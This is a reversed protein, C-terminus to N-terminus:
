YKYNSCYRHPAAISAKAPPASPGSAQTPEEQGRHAYTETWRCRVVREAEDRDSSLWASNTDFWHMKKDPCMIIAIRYVETDDTLAYYKGVVMLGAIAAIRIVNPLTTDDRMNALQDELSELMPIVEYILPVEARSFLQTIDEFIELAEELQKALKWQAPTLAYQTLGSDVGTMQKVPTEFKNHAALCALDSNWQTPVRRDLAVKQGTATQDNAKVLKEFKDQLTGSDHIRRALGAVKPFLTLAADEDQATMQLGRRLGEAIAQGRVSRITAEDHAAKGEDMIGEEDVTVEAVVPDEEEEQLEPEPEPPPAPQGRKRKGPAVKVKAKKKPQKFFFAIFANPVNLRRLCYYVKAILNITHPFCRTRSLAARYTPIYLPLADSTGDCNSANDM